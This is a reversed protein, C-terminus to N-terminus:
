LRVDSRLLLGHGTETDSGCGGGPRECAPTVGWRAFRNRHKAFWHYGADECWHVVPVRYVLSLLRWRGGLAFLTRNIAAAGAYRRGRQDFAWAERDLDARTLQPADVVGFAQNPLLRVRGSTDHRAVWDAFRTCVGCHGDFVLLLDADALHERMEPSLSHAM